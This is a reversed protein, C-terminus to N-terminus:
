LSLRALQRSANFFLQYALAAAALALFGVLAASRDM